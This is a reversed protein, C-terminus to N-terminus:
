PGDPPPPRPSGPGAGDRAGGAAARAPAARRRRPGAGARPPLGRPGGRGSRPPAAVRGPRTCTTTTRSPSDTSSTSGADSGQEEAVAVARSLEVVPSGTFVPSSATSPRSRPGTAPSTPTCRRSRRRCSTPVGAACPWPASSRRGGAPSRAADWRSRDQDALPVWRGRSVAGRPPRRAAADDGAPRAGGARRADARRPGARAPHGRGGARRPRRLGRQLDPLRGRPRRRASRPLLYDPPVRFKPDRRGQDRKAAGAAAAMTPEPVLPAFAIEGTTSAASRGCPSRSRRTPPSRRIAAPSSSSSGSTPFTTEDMADEDSEPVLLLRTKAALARDCRSAISPETARRRSWGRGRTPPAGDRPWREAAIAFAEQAAEEALDFDGLFGIM